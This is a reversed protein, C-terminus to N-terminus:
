SQISTWRLGGNGAIANGIFRYPLPEASQMGRPENAVADVSEVGIGIRRTEIAAQSGVFDAASRRGDIRIRLARQRSEPQIQVGASRLLM